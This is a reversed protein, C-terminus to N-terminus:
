PYAGMEQLKALVTETDKAVIVELGFTEVHLIKEHEAKQLPSLRGTRSKTEVWLVGTENCTDGITRPFLILLDPLGRTFRDALKRVYARPYKQRVQTIIASVITKERMIKEKRKQQQRKKNKKRKRESCHECSSCGPRTSDKCYVCLGAALRKRYRTRNVLARHRRCVLCAHTTSKVKGCLVCLGAKKRQAIKRQTRIAARILCVKCRGLLRGRKQAVPARGCFPCLGQVRLRLSREKWYARNYSGM